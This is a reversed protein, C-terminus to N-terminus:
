LILIILSLQNLFWCSNEWFLWEGAGDNYNYKVTKNKFAAGEYEFSCSLQCSALADSGAASVTITVEGSGKAQIVGANSVTFFLKM